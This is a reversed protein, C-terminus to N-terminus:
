GFAGFGSVFDSFVSLGSWVFVLACWFLVFTDLFVFFDTKGSVYVLVFYSYNSTTFSMLELFFFCFFALFAIYLTM